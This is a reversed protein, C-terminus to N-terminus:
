TDQIRKSHIWISESPVQRTWSLKWACLFSGWFIIRIKRFRVRDLSVLKSIFAEFSGSPHTFAQALNDRYRQVLPKKPEFETKVLTWGNRMFLSRLGRASFATLHNPPMDILRLNKEQWDIYAFNPVSIFLEADTTGLGALSRLANDLQDLHELAQFLVIVRFPAGCVGKRFDVEEVSVGLRRLAEAGHSSFETVTIQSAKVGEELTLKVFSGSGAGIELLREGNKLAEFAIGKTVDFEWRNQPYESKPFALQYFRSNGAVHPHAFRSECFACRFIQCEASGWLKEIEIKLNIEDQVGSTRVFHEASESSTVTFLPPTIVDAHCVPCVINQM